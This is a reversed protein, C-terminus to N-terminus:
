IVDEEGREIFENEITVDEFFIPCTAHEKWWRKFDKFTWKINRDDTEPIYLHQASM